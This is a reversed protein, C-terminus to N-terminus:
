KSTFNCVCPLLSSIQNCKNRSNHMPVQPIPRPVRRALRELTGRPVSASVQIMSWYPWTFCSLLTSLWNRVAISSPSTTTLIGHTDIPRAQRVDRVICSTQNSFSLFLIVNKTRRVLAKSVIVFGKTDEHISNFLFRWTANGCTSCNVWDEVNVFTLSWSYKTPWSSKIELLLERYEIRSTRSGGVQHNRDYKIPSIVWRSWFIRAHETNEVTVRPKEETYMRM